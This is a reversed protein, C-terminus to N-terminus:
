SFCMCIYTNTDGYLVSAICEMSEVEVGCVVEVYFPTPAENVEM